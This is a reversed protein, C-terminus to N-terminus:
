GGFFDRLDTIPDPDLGWTMRYGISVGNGVPLNQGGLPIQGTIELIGPGAQTAGQGPFVLVLASTVACALSLRRPIM